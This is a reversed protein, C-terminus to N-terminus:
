RILGSIRFVEEWRKEYTHETIAKQHGAKRIQDAKEPNDLLHKIKNLCDQEDTFTMIERGIDYVYLLEPNHQCLYLGGSM